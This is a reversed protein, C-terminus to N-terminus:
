HKKSAKLKPYAVRSHYVGTLQSVITLKITTLESMTIDCNAFQDLDIREEILNRVLEEVRDPSRVPLSRSAAESADAIMIIAAIKTQPTPGAYSYNSMKLEGDSMKLAKAYFYKIPMTGHHQIAIDAFFDPLHAKRILQAGDRTHSRIIDVSLEPTLENHMNYEKQNESFMDPSKLKGVDHYYAAARALESDEGIAQACAEALQAVVMSHNYTGPANRKLRRMLKAQDSTLERLRFVTLESFIMEFVPLLFMYMLVSFFSGLAGFLLSMLTDNLSNGMETVRLLTTILEIPILLIFSIIVSGLRSKIKPTIFIAIMGTCFTLILFNYSLAVDAEAVMIDTFSDLIFMQLAFIMNLFIAERRGMLTVCILALFAVPRAATDVFTSILYTAVLSIILILFVETIKGASTIYKKNEFYFYCYMIGSLIVFSCGVIILTSVNDEVYRNFSGAGTYMLNFVLMLVIVGLLVVTGLIYTIVGSVYGKKSKKM